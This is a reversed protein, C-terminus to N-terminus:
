RMIDTPCLKSCRTPTLVGDQLTWTIDYGEQGCSGSAESFTQADEVTVAEEASVNMVPELSMLLAMCCAIRSRGRM